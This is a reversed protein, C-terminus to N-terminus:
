FGRATLLTDRISGMIPMSKVFATPKTDLVFNMSTAIVVVPALLLAQWQSNKVTSPLRAIIWSLSKKM